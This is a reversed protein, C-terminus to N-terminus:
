EGMSSCYDEHARYVERAFAFLNLNPVQDQDFFRIGDKSASRWLLELTYIDEDHSNFHDLSRYREWHEFPDVARGGFFSSKFFECDFLGLSRAWEWMSHLKISNPGFIECILGGLCDDDQLCRAHRVAYFLEDNLIDELIENDEWDRTGGRAKAWRWKFCEYSSVLDM